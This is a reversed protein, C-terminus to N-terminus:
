PRSYPRSEGDQRSARELCRLDGETSRLSGRRFNRATASEYPGGKTYGLLTRSCSSCNSLKQSLAPQLICICPKATATMGGFTVEPCPKRGCGIPRQRLAWGRWGWKSSVGLTRAQCDM